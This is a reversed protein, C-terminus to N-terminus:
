AEPLPNKEADGVGTWDADQLLPLHAGGLARSEVVASM